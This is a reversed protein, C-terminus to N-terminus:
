AVEHVVHVVLIHFLDAFEDALIVLGVLLATGVPLVAIGVSFLKDHLEGFLPRKRPGASRIDPKRKESNGRELVMRTRVWRQDTTCLRNAAADNAVIRLAGLRRSCLTNRLM